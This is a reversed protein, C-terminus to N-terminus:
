RLEVMWNHTDPATGVRIANIADYLKSAVPGIENNSITITEGERTLHGVPSIVAATGTAFMEDLKGNRSAEFIEDVKIPRESVRYGWDRLLTLVSDRTIGPLITGNLPATIVEGDIIFFANSTGIEEAYTHTSGDTWLVQACGRQEALVQSLLSAAYNGSTKAFGTGGDSARSYTMEVYLDVPKTGAAYYSAVPSFIVFYKYEKSVHVGLFPETAIMFPRIYLSTGESKPVCDANALVGARVSEFFMEEPVPPMVLRENTRIARKANMDPRFTWISGDPRRFAKLGEFMEQGYHLVSAAPEIMFPGYPVVALDHWGQGETYTAVSMWPAMIKGFGLKSDEPLAITKAQGIIPFEYKM